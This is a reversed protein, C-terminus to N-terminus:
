KAPVVTLNRLFPELDDASPLKVHYVDGNYSFLADCVGQTGVASGVETEQGGIEWLVPNPYTGAREAREQDLISFCVGERMPVLIVSGFPDIRIAEGGAGGPLWGPYLISKGIFSAAEEPSDFFLSRDRVIIVDRDETHIEIREGEELENLQPKLSLLLKELSVGKMQAGAAVPLLVVVAVAAAIGATLRRRRAHATGTKGRLTRKMSRMLRREEAKGPRYAGSTVRDIMGSWEEVAAIDQEEDPRSLEEDIMRDLMAALREEGSKTRKTEKKM